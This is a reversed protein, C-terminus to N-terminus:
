RRRVCLSLDYPILLSWDSTNREYTGYGTYRFNSASQTIPDRWFKGPAPERSECPRM